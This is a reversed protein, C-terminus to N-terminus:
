LFRSQMRRQAESRSVSRLPSRFEASPKKTYFFRKEFVSNQNKFLLFYSFLPPPILRAIFSHNVISFISPSVIHKSRTRAMPLLRMGIKKQAIRARKEDICPQADRVYACLHFRQRAQGNGDSQRVGMPIMDAAQFEKGIEGHVFRFFLPQASFEGQRGRRHPFIQQFLRTIKGFIERRFFISYKLARRGSKQLVPVREIEAVPAQGSQMRGSMGGSM